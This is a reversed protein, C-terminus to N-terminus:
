KIKLLKVLFIILYCCLNKLFNISNFLYNCYNFLNYWIVNIIIKEDAVRLEIMVRM